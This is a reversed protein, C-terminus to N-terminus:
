VDDDDVIDKRRRQQVAGKVGDGGGKGGVPGHATDPAHGGGQPAADVGHQARLLDYVSARRRQGRPMELDDTSSELVVGAQSPRQAPVTRVDEGLIRGAMSRGPPGSHEAEEGRGATRGGICPMETEAPATIPQETARSSGRERWGVTEAVVDLALAERTWSHLDALGPQTERTAHTVRRVTSSKGERMKKKRSKPSPSEAPALTTIRGTVPGEAHVSTTAGTTSSPLSPSCPVYAPAEEMLRRSAEDMRGRRDAQLPDERVQRELEEATMAGGIPLMCVGQVTLAPREGADGAGAGECELMADDMARHGESGGTELMREARARSAISQTMECRSAMDQAREREERDIRDQESEPAREQEPGCDGGDGATCEEQGSSCQTGAAAEQLMSSSIDGMSCSPVDRLIQSVPTAAADGSGHEGAPTPPLGLSVDLIGSFSVGLQASARGVQAAEGVVEAFGGAVEESAATFEGTAEAAAEASAAAFKTSGAGVEGTAAGEDVRHVTRTSSASERRARGGGGRGAGETHGAGGVGRGAGSDGRGAGSCRDARHRGSRRLGGAAQTGDGGEDGSDDDDGRGRRPSYAVDDEGESSGEYGERDDDDDDDREDVIDRTGQEGHGPRDTPLPPQQAAAGTPARGSSPSPPPPPPHQAVAATSARASPPPPPPPPPHQAASATSPRATPPPPPPPPPHQAASATSARTQPRLMEALPDDDGGDDFDGPESEVALDDPDFWPEAEMPDQDMPDSKPDYVADLQTPMLVTSCRGFYTEVSPPAKSLRDKRGHQVQRERQAETVRDAPRVGEDRPPPISDETEEEADEWPLVYRSGRGQCRSLRLNTSIEVLRALKIFGLQNRKKVQVREHVAWNREAPSACTWTHTLRIAYTQLLPIGDGHQVWWQGVQSTEKEGRCSAADRDDEVGGYTWDGERSLFEALQTRLTLYLDEDGGTQQRLYRLSEEALTKDHESRRTAGFYTISRHRPNLLHAICHAPELMHDARAQCAQVVINLEERSTRNLRARAVKDIMALAWSWMRTMVRGGRDLRCLLQGALFHVEEMCDAVLRREDDVGGVSPSSGVVDGVDLLPFCVEDTRPVCARQQQQSSPPAASSSAAVASTSSPHAASFRRYLSLAAGHERIFRVVARARIITDERKGLKGPTGDKAIDSLLLNCVHVACPLWTIRSYKVEEKALLKSAAVYVSASDTCIANVNEVGFNDFVDKWREVVVKATEQVAGDRQMTRFLYAGTPGAALFNVIQDSTISKRGNTLITAGTAAIDKRVAAMMEAVVRQQQPIGDGSILCHTPLVPHTYPPCELLRKRVRQYKPRRAAEFPIGSVYWWQLFENTFDRQWAPDFTEIMSTQRLVKGKKPLPPAPTTAKRKRKKSQVADKMAKAAGEQGRRGAAMLGGDFSAGLDAGQDDNDDDDDDHEDPTSDEAVAKDGRMKGRAREAERRVDMDQSDSDSDDGGGEAERKEQESHDYEEGAQERRSTNRNDRFGRSRLFDIIKRHHSQDFPYNTNNWIGALQEATVKACNNKITFHQAAKSLSGQFGPGCLKCEM